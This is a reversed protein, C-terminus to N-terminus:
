FGDLYNLVKNGAAVAVGNGNGFTWGPDTGLQEPLVTPTGGVATRWSASVFM